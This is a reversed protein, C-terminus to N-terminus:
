FDFIFTVQRRSQQATNGSTEPAGAAFAGLMQFEPIGSM